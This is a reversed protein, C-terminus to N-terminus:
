KTHKWVEHQRQKEPLLLTIKLIRLKVDIRISLFLEAFDNRLFPLLSEISFSFEYIAHSKHQIYICASYNLQLSHAWYQLPLISTPILPLLRRIFLTTTTKTPKNTDTRQVDDNDNFQFLMQRIFANSVREQHVQMISRRFDMPICLIHNKHLLMKRICDELKNNVNSHYVFVIRM